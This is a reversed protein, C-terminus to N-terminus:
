RNRDSFRKIFDRSPSYDMVRTVEWVGQYPSKDAKVTSILKRRISDSILLKTNSAHALRKAYSILNGTSTFHFRNNEIESIIEGDSVGLGFNGDSSMSMHELFIAQMRRAVNVANAENDQNRTLRPSFLVIKYEGDVYVKAGTEQALSLARNMTAVMAPSNSTIYLAIAAARERIGHNEVGFLNAPSIKPTTSFPVNVPASVAPNSRNNLWSMDFKKNNATMDVNSRTNPTFEIKSPKFVNDSQSTMMSSASPSPRPMKQMRIKIQVLVIVLILLAVGLWWILPNTFTYIFDEKFSTVKIANGTLFASGLTKQEGAQDSVKISYEGDPASITLKETEGPGLNIQKIEVVTGITIELPGSYASNGINTVILTNNILSTQLTNVESLYFLKRNKMGEVDTEISWYGPIDSLMFNIKQDEGSKVVKKIFPVGKPQNITLSVEKLVPDGAQDVADVRFIFDSEPKASEENVNIRVEKLIQGVSFKGYNSGFNIKRSNHDTNHVELTYNHEGSKVNLPFDISINFVGNTVVASKYLNLAPIFLEAFGNVPVESKTISYGSLHLTDGPNLNEFELESELNLVKSLTFTNSNVVDSGFTARLYCPATVNDLLPNLLETAVVVPQEIGAQAQFFSNFINYSITNGCRLDVIYHSSTTVSPVIVTNVEIQDGYNYVNKLPEIFISSSALPIALFAFAVLIMMRMKM